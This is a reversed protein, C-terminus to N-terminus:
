HLLPIIKNGKLTHFATTCDRQCTSYIVPTSLDYPGLFFFSYKCILLFYDFLGATGQHLCLNFVSTSCNLTTQLVVCHFIIKNKTFSYTWSM